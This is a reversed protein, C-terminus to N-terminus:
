VLWGSPHGLGATTARACSHDFTDLAGPIACVVVDLFQASPLDPRKLRVNVM